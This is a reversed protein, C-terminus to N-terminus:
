LPAGSQFRITCTTSMMVRFLFFSPKANWHKVSAPTFVANRRAFSPLASQPANYWGNKSTYRLFSSICFTYTGAIGRLTFCRLAAIM